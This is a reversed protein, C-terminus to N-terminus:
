AYAKDTSLARRHFNWAEVPFNFLFYIYEIMLFGGLIMYKWSTKRLVFLTLGTCNIMCFPYVHGFVDEDLVQRRTLSYLNLDSLVHRTDLSEKLALNEGQVYSNIRGMVEMRWLKEAMM